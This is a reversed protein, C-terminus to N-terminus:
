VDKKRELKEKAGYRRCDMGVTRQFPLISVM